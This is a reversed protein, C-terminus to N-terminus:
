PVLPDIHRFLDQLVVDLSTDSDSGEGIGFQIKVEEWASSLLRFIPGVVPVLQIMGIIEKLGELFATMLQIVINTANLIETIAPGVAEMFSIGLNQTRQSLQSQADTFRSLTPAAREARQIDGQVQRVEARATAASITANYDSLKETAKSMEDATAKTAVGLAVVAIVAIGVPNALAPALAAMSGGTAAGSAAAGTTAGATGATAAGTATTTAGATAAATGTSRAATGAVAGVVPAKAPPPTPVSPSKTATTQVPINPTGKATPALPKAQVERKEVTPMDGIKSPESATPTVPASVQVQVPAPPITPPAQAPLPPVTPPSQAPLPPVLEAVVPPPQGTVAATPETITPRVSPPIAPIASAPVPPPTEAPTPPPTEAPAPPPTEPITASSQTIDAVTSIDAPVPQPVSQSVPAPPPIPSTPLISPPPAPPPSSLEPVSAPVPPAVPPPTPVQAPKAANAEAVLRAERRKAQVEVQARRFSAVADLGIGILSGAFGGIVGRFQGVVDLVKDVPSEIDEDGFQERYLARVQASRREAERRKMAEAMPDFTPPPPPLPEVPKPKRVISPDFRDGSDPMDPVDFKKGGITAKRELGGTAGVEAEMRVKQAFNPLMSAVGKIGSMSAAEALIAVNFKRGEQLMANVENALKPYDQLLKKFDSLVITMPKFDDQTMVQGQRAAEEKQSKRGELTQKIFDVAETGATEAGFVSAAGKWQAPDHGPDIVHVEEGKEMRQFAINRTTVSKGSGSMGEILVHRNAGEVGDVLRKIWDPESGTVSTKTPEPSRPPEPHNKPGIQVQAPQLPPTSQDGSRTQVQAPQLPETSQSQPPYRIEWYAPKEQTFAAAGTVAGIANRNPDALGEGEVSVPKLKGGAHFFIEAGIQHAEIIRKKVEDAVRSLSDLNLLEVDGSKTTSGFKGAM